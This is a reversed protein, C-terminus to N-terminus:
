PGGGGPPERYLRAKRDVVELQRGAQSFETSERTGLCLFGGPVLSRRFLDLVRDQLPRDFYILVNRCLVLQMAGFDQDTVLNHDAFTVAQRLEPLFIAEEQDARYYESFSQTGGVQQYGRTAERMGALPYAGRRAVELVEQNFDTGYLTARSLLGAERLLIALSYVEEGTGCGAHWIKVTELGALFPFVEERIRRFVFPDRFMETTSVSFVPLLRAFFDEDRLLRPLLETPSGFGERGLFHTVRRRVSARSYGRFDYGYRRLIGELLLDLEISQVPDLEPRNM